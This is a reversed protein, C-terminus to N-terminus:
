GIKAAAKVLGNVLITCGAAQLDASGYNKDNMLASIDGATKGLCAAEFAAAQEMWEKVVGDGNLDAGYKSMGYAAGQEKKGSVAKSKDYTSVGSADFGFQIQVCETSAAVIKGDANVAAAFFTTEIQNYGNKDATADQLAQETNTGLKVTDKATAKSDALNAFAKEIARVFEHIM